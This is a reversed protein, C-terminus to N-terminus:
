YQPVGYGYIQYNGISYQGNISPLPKITEQLEGLLRM